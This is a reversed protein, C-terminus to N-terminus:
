VSKLDESKTDEFYEKRNLINFTSRKKWPKGLFGCPLFSLKQVLFFFVLGKSFNSIKSRNSVESKQELFYEKRNVINFFLRKKMLKGLFGVHYFARYKSLLMTQGRKLFGIKPVRQFKGKRIQFTNNKIWLILFLDKRGQSALFACM